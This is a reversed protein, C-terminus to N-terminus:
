RQRDFRRVADEEEVREGSQGELRIEAEQASASRIQGHPHPRVHEIYPCSREASTGRRYGLAIQHRLVAM